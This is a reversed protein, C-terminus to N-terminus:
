HEKKKTLKKWIWNALIGGLTGAVGMFFASILDVWAVGYIFSLLTGAGVKATDQITM